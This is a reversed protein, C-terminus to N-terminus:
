LVHNGFNYSTAELDVLDALKKIISKPLDYRFRIVNGEDTRGLFLRPAPDGYFDNIYRIYNDDDHTFLAKTQREMLELKSPM